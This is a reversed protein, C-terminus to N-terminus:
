DMGLYVTKTLALHSTTFVFLLGLQHSYVLALARRAKFQHHFLVQILWDSVHKLIEVGLFSYAQAVPETVKAFIHLVLNLGCPLITFKFVTWDLQVVLYITTGPVIPIHKHSSELDLM